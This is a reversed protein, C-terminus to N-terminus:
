QAIEELEYRKYTPILQKVSLRLEYLREQPSFEINKNKLWKEVVIKRSNSKPFNDKLMSHYPVNNM